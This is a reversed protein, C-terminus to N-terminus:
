VHMHTQAENFWLSDSKVAEFGNRDRELAYEKLPSELEWRFHLGSDDEDCANGQLSCIILREYFDVVHNMQVQFHDQSSNQIAGYRIKLNTAFPICGSQIINKNCYNYLLM